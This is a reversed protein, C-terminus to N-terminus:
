SVGVDLMPKGAIFTTVLQRELALFNYDIITGKGIELSYSCHAYLMPILDMDHDFAVLHHLTADQTPVSKGRCFYYLCDPIYIEIKHCCSVWLIVVTSLKKEAMMTFYKKYSASRYVELKWVIM